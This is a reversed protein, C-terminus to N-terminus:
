IDYIGVLMDKTWRGTCREKRIRKCIDIGSIDPMVWDLIAMQPAGKQLLAHYAKKSDTYIEPTFGWRKLYVSLLKCNSAEDDAILIRM